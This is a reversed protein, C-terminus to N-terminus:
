RFQAIEERALPPAFWQKNNKVFIQAATFGCAQARSIAQSVGGSTSTHAGLLVGAPLHLSTAKGSVDKKLPVTVKAKAGPKIESVTASTKLSSRAPKSKM